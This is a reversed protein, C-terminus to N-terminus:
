GLLYFQGLVLKPVPLIGTARLDVVAAAQILGLWSPEAIDDAGRALPVFRVIRM